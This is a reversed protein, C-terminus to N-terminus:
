EEADGFCAQLLAKMKERGLSNLLIINREPIQEPDPYQMIAQSVREEQLLHLMPFPSRNTYNEPDDKHTGAFQYDPHFSAIQFIGELDMDALLQDAYALFQNYRTFNNLVNPHILLSTEIADNQNILELEDQLDMLLREETKAESVSFRILNKALVPKAFPCLNLGVVVSSVWHRVTETIEKDEM